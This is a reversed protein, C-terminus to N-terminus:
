LTYFSSEKIMPVKVEKNDNNNNNNNLHEVLGLQVVVVVVGGGGGGGCGGINDEKEIMMDDDDDTHYDLIGVQLLLLAFRESTLQVQALMGVNGDMENGNDNDGSKKKVMVIRRLKPIMDDHVTGLAEFIGVESKIMIIACRPYVTILSCLTLFTDRLYSLTDLVSSSSSSSLAAAQVHQNM